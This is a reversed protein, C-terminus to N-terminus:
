AFFLETGEENEKKGENDMKNRKLLHLTYNKLKMM